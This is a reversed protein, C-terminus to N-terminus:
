RMESLGLINFKMRKIEQKVNKVMGRQMMTQVNWAGKKLQHRNRVTAHHHDPSVQRVHEERGDVSRPTELSSSVQKVNNDSKMKTKRAMM